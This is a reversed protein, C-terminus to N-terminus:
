GQPNLACRRLCVDQDMECNPGVVLPATPAVQQTGVIPPPPPPPARLRTCLNFQLQCNNLCSNQAIEKKSILAFNGAFSTAMSCFLIIAAVSLKM